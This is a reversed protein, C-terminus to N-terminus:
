HFFRKLVYEGILTLVSGLIVLLLNSRREERTAQQDASYRLIVMSHRYTLAFFTLWLILLVGVIIGIARLAVLQHITLGGGLQSLSGGLIGVLVVLWVPVKHAVEKWWVKKEAFVTALKSHIDWEKERSIGWTRWSTSYPSVEFEAYARNIWNDHLLLEETSVRLELRHARKRLREFDKVLESSRDDVQVKTKVRTSRKQRASESQSSEISALSERLIGAIEEIDDLYLRAPPLSKPVPKEKRTLAM